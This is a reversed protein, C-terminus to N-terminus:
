QGHVYRGRVIVTRPRVQLPRHCGHAYAWAVPERGEKKKNKLLDYFVHFAKTKVNKSIDNSHSVETSNRKRIKYLCLIRFKKIGL